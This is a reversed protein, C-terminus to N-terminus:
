VRAPSPPFSLLPVFSKLKVTEPLKGEAIAVITLAVQSAHFFFTWHAQLEM